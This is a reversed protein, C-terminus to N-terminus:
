IKPIVIQKDMMCKFHGKPCRESGMRSCPHCRLGVPVLDQHETKYAWFGFRPSTAGWLAIVPRRFAAAIHMLASDPTVVMTADRILQATETLSTQGCLNRVHSGAVFRAEELRRRDNEDGLLLVTRDTQECLEAIKCPPIRKTEHQAGCAVVLYDAPLAFRRPQEEPLFIDLGGGDGHVGLPRVADFYREVVHRGSMHDVKAWVLLFKHLNEKRYVLTRVGLARRIRRTRHVNHLDVVCDYHENHLTAVTEEMTDSLVILRDIYPNGKLLTAASPKVLFHLEVDPLQTHLCRVVPTTLLVDGISSLRMVLVKM